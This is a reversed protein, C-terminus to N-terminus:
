SKKQISWINLGTEIVRVKKRITVLNSNVTGSFILLYEGVITPTWQFYYIGTSYKTLSGTAINNGQLDKIIYTPTTANYLIGDSNAFKGQFLITNNNEFEKILHLM